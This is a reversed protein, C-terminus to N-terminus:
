VYSPNALEWMNQWLQSYEIAGERKYPELIFLSFGGWIEGKLPGSDLIIGPAFDLDAFHVHPYDGSLCSKVGERVLPNFTDHMLVWTRTRPTIGLANRLDTAAGEVTHDGDIFIFDPLAKEDDMKQLIDPLLTKSDGTYFETDPFKQKLNSAVNEDVDLSIVRDCYRTLMQLSGGNRSGIEL